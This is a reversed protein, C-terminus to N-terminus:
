QETPSRMSHVIGPMALPAIHICEGFVFLQPRGSLPDVVHYGADVADWSPTRLTTASRQGKTAEGRMLFKTLNTISVVM